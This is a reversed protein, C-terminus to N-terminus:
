GSGLDILVRGPGLIEVTSECWKHMLELEARTLYYDPLYTCRNWRQLGNGSYMLASPLRRQGPESDLFEKQMMHDLSSSITESFIDYLTGPVLNRLYAHDIQIDTLQLNETENRNM